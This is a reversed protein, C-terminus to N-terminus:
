IFKSIIDDLPDLLPIIFPEYNIVRMKIKHLDGTKIIAWITKIWSSRDLKKLYRPSVSSLNTKTLDSLSIDTAFKSWEEMTRPPNFLGKKIIENYWPSGPFPTYINYTYRTPKIRKLLKLTQAVEEKTETPSGFIVSATTKFKYKNCLDFANKIQKVTIGKNMNNLVRQSGSEVGFSFWVSKFKKFHSLFEEDIYNVRTEIFLRYEPSLYDLIKYVRKKDATFNDDHFALNKNNTLKEINRIEKIVRKASMGRWRGKNFFLNYCFKCRYPCGRSTILIVDFKFYKKYNILGWQLLPLADLNKILPRKKTIIIKGNKKFGVGRVKSIDGRKELTKIFELFSYEGENIVIYDIYPNELTQEPLSSVHVGGMVVPFSDGFFSKVKKAIKIVDILDPGTLASIGVIDPKFKKLKSFVFFDMSRDFLKVEYGSKKLIGGVCMLGFPPIATGGICKMNPQVLAIKM